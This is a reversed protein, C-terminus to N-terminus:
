AQAENKLRAQYRERFYARRDNKKWPKHERQYRKSREIIAARNNRYYDRWYETRWAIPRPEILDPRLRAIGLPTLWCMESLIDCGKRIKCRECPTM